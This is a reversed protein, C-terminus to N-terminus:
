GGTSVQPVGCGRGDMSRRVMEFRKSPDRRIIDSSTMSIVKLVRKALDLRMASIQM